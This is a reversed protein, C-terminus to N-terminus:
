ARRGSPRSRATTGLMRTVRFWGTLLLGGALALASALPLSPLSAPPLPASHLTVNGLDLLDGGRGFEIPIEPPGEFHLQLPHGAATSVAGPSLIRLLRSTPSAPVEFEFGGLSDTMLTGVGEIELQLGPLAEAGLGEPDRIEFRGRFLVPGIAPPAEEFLLIGLDLPGDGSPLGVELESKLYARNFAAVPRVRFLANPFGIQSVDVGGPVDIDGTFRGLDNEQGDVGVAFLDVTMPAGSGDVVQGLIPPAERELIHFTQFTPSVSADFLAANVAGLLKTEFLGADSGTVLDISVLPGLAPASLDFVGSADTTRTQSFGANDSVLVQRSAGARPAESRSLIELAYHTNVNRAVPPLDVDLLTCSLTGGQCTNGQSSPSTGGDHSWQSEGRLFVRLNGTGQLSWDTSFDTANLHALANEHGVSGTVADTVAASTDDAAASFPVGQASTHAIRANQIEGPVTARNRVQLTQDFCQHHFISDSAPSLWGIANSGSQIELPYLIEVPLTANGSASAPPDSFLGNSEGNVTVKAGISGVGHDLAEVEMAFTLTGEWRGLTETDPDGDGKETYRRTERYAVDGDFDVELTIVGVDDGRIHGFSVDTEVSLARLQGVYWDSTGADEVRIQIAGIEPDNDSTSLVIGVAAILGVVALIIGWAALSLAAGAQKAFLSAALLTALVRAVLPQGGRQRHRPQKM